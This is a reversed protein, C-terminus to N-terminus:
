TDLSVSLKVGEVNVGGIVYGREREIKWFGEIVSGCILIGCFGIGGEGRFGKRGEKDM